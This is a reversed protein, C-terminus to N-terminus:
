DRGNLNLQRRGLDPVALAPVGLIKELDEPTRVSHDLREALWALGLSGILALLFGVALFFLRRPKVPREDFTAPQVVNINSIREKELAQDIRAQEFNESYKRYHAAQLDVERQLAAVRLGNENLRRLALRERELQGRLSAEKARLAAVAPERRVLILHAEESVKGPGTTVQERSRQERDFIEKAAAVQDRILRVEPHSAPHRGLLELEKLQLTYLHERMRDAAENPMGRTRATVQTEPLLARLDRVAKVEAEAEALTAATQALEEEIKGLRAVTLQKQEALAFLDTRNQLDKLKEESRTLETRMRDAQEALFKQAGPTRNLQAHRDLYLDTLSAVVARAVEPSPGDYSIAIINSKKVADVEITRILTRVARDRLKPDGAPSQPDAEQKDGSGLVAAAGVRDVVQELLARSRLIEIVSNIETERSQPVAVVSAQNLTTTPDLITNERGLRVFLKSQSRYGRPVLFAAATVIGMVAVFFLTMKRRHRFVARCAGRLSLVPGSADSMQEERTLIRVVLMLGSRFLLM